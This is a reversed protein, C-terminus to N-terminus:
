PLTITSNRHRTLRRSDIRTPQRQAAGRCRWRMRAIPEALPRMDPFDGMEATIAPTGARQAGLGGIVTESRSSKWRDASM